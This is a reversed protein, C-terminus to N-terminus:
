KGGLDKKGATDPDRKKKEARWEDLTEYLPHQEEPFFFHELEHETTDSEYPGFLTNTPRHYAGGATFGAKALSELYAKALAPDAFSAANAKNIDQTMLKQNQYLRVNPWSRNPAKFTWPDGGAQRQRTLEPDTLVRLLMALLRRREDPTQRQEAM